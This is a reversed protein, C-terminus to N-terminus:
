RSQLAGRPFVKMGTALLRRVTTELLTRADERTALHDRSEVEHFHGREDRGEVVFLWDDSQVNRAICGILIRSREAFWEVEEQFWESLRFRDPNLQDFAVRSISQIAM